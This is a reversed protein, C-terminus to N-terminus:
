HSGDLADSHADDLAGQSGLRELVYRRVLADARVRL